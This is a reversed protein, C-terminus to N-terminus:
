RPDYRIFLVFSAAFVATTQLLLLVLNMLGGRALVQGVSLRQYSLHTQDDKAWSMGTRPLGLIFERYEIVTRKFNLMEQSGTNTLDGALLAYAGAPSLRIIKRSLLILRNLRNRYDVVLADKELDHERLDFEKGRGDREYEAQARRMDMSAERLRVVYSNYSPVDVFRKALINGLGPLVLVLAVWILLSASLSAASSRSTTSVMLGLSFFLGLYLLSALLFLALKLCDQLSLQLNSAMNLLTVIALFALIFPLVLCVMGGAWKGTLLISRPLSSAMMQRLTGSEKEATILNFSFLVACLSLFMLTVYFLDPTNFLRFVDGAFDKQNSYSLIGSERHTDYVSCLEMDLGRNFIALPTPRLLSSTEALDPLQIEYERMRRNYDQYMVYASAFMLVLTILMILQFKFSYLNQRIEKYIIAKLM